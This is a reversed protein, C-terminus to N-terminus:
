EVAALARWVERSPWPAPAHDARVAEFPRTAGDPERVVSIAYGGWAADAHLPFALGLERGARERLELLRDVPDVASEETTGVVAVAALVPTRRRALAGPLRWLAEVDIRFRRDVPVHVLQDGGIGLARCIKVWSYHATSPV